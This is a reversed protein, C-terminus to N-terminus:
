SDFYSVLSTVKMQAYASSVTSHRCGNAPFCERSDLGVLESDPGVLKSDPGVLQADPGVLKSGHGVLPWCDPLSPLTALKASYINASLYMKM